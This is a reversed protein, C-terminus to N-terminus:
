ITRKPRVLRSFSSFLANEVFQGLEAEPLWKRQTQILISHKFASRFEEWFPEHSNLFPDLLELFKKQPAVNAEGCAVLFNDHRSVNKELELKHKGIWDFVDIKPQPQEELLWAYRAEHKQTGNQKVMKKPHVIGFRLPEM